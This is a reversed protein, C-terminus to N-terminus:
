KKLLSLVENVEKPVAASLVEAGNATVLLTDEIRIHMQQDPMDIIPEIALVMGEEFPLGWNGVDHVSMGVYHGSYAHSPDFGHKRMTEEALRRIASRPVGPKIAAIITKQTDLVAEYAKAQQPTFEASVPWTRTIDVTLYDLAGAYDMVVLEGAKMQRGNDQYHWQNGMPGSGVIAPYAAAQIGHRVLWYTAEAELEYEYKGAATAQIARKLAEASIRANYRLIEIERPTKILRLRDIHPTVDRLTYAPFRTRLSTARAADETPQQEFPNALRRAVRSTVEGRGLDIEDRDSLRTWVTATARGQALFTYLDSLPEISAFGRKKAAGPENLWNGGEFQVQTATLQPMFLTTTGTRVNMVLVANTAESGTLYYFDHDQRFRVGPTSSNASFLVLLGDTSQERLVKALRERRATFEEPPYGFREATPLAAAVTVVLVCAALVPTKLSPIQVKPNPIQSKFTAAVEVDCM